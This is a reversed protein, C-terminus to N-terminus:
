KSLGLKKNLSEIYIEAVRFMGKKLKEKALKLEIKLDFVDKGSKELKEIEQELKEIRSNYEKYMQMEQDTIKHPMHLPPRFSIFWPLGKNYKPNQIMGIGVEEKAVRRAYELGYKKEIRQLDNLSKTHMQIETLVNGKIAEKFDSLVQSAMILGIGWKRFERCARELAVYGGKGGYKEL